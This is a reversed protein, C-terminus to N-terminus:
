WIDNLTAFITLLATAVAAALAWSAWHPWEQQPIRQRDQLEAM